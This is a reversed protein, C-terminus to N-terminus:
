GLGNSSLTGTVNNTIQELLPITQEANETEGEVESLPTNQEDSDDSGSLDSLGGTIRERIQDRLPSTQAYEDETEDIDEESSSADEQVDSSLEESDDSSSSSDDDGSSTEPAPTIPASDLTSTNNQALVSSQSLDIATLMVTALILFTSLAGLKIHQIHIM